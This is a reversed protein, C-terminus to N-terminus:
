KIDYISITIVPRVGASYTSSYSDLYDMMKSTYIILPNYNPYNLATWYSSSFMWDPMSSLDWSSGNSWEIKIGINRLQEVSLLGGTVGSMKQNLYAVYNDVMPKLTDNNENYIYAFPEPNEWYNVTSFAVTGYRSKTNWNEDIEVGKAKEEQIGYTAENPYKNDGVNLNYMALADIKEPTPDNSEDEIVYFKETSNSLECSLVDGLSYKNNGDNDILTCTDTKKISGYSYETEGENVVCGALYFSNDDYLQQTSCVIDGDYEIILDNFNAPSKKNNLQYSVIANKVASAYLEMSRKESEKEADEVIDIIIPTAILAIIALIVIVALLEILTFGNKKM